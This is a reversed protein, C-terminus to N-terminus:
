EWCHINAAMLRVRQLLVERHNEAAAALAIVAGGLAIGVIWLLNPREVTERIVMAVLDALLFGTGTYMLARVRIGISLIVIAVSAVMLSLLHPWSGGVIHFTPSVLIVLAGLYRLPNVHPAPIERKLYEVLFLISVGLPIMFWQPDSWTLERWLLALAANVIVIAGVVFGKERRELGQWFYFGAALLLALSNMGHWTTSIGLVHRGLAIAVTGLPLTLGVLALPKSMVATSPNRSTLRGLAWATLGAFLVAYMGWGHEFHIVGPVALYAVSLAVIAIAYWVRLESTERCARLIQVGAITAFSALAMGVSVLGFEGSPLLLSVPLATAMILKLGACHSQLVENREDEEAFAIYEIVLGGLAACLAVPLACEVLQAITAQWIWHSYPQCVQLVVPFMQWTALVILNRWPRADRELFAKTVLAFLAVGGAIRAPMSISLLTGVLIAGLVVSAIAYPAAAFLQWSQESCHFQVDVKQATRVMLQRRLLITTLLTLCSVSAWSTAYWAAGREVGMAATVLLSSVGLTLIFAVASLGATKKHRSADFSWAMVAVLGLWPFGAVGTFHAFVLRHGYYVCTLLSLGVFSLRYAPGALARTIRPAPTLTRLYGFLWLGLLAVTAGMLAQHLSAGRELGWMFGLALPCLLAFEGLLPLLWVVSQVLLLGCLCMAALYSHGPATTEDFILRLTTAAILVSATMVTVLLSAYQCIPWTSLAQLRLKNLNLMQYSSGSVRDLWRGPLLLLGGVVGMALYPTEFTVEFHLLDRAFVTWGLGAIILGTVGAVILQREQFLIAQLAFVVIMVTAVPFMAKPHGCAAVLLLLALGQAAARTPQAFLASGRKSAIRSAFTLGLLLPLYTLGYFAYPLRPEQVSQAGQQIVNAALQQFFVPSFNYSVIIALLMAWVLQKNQTRHALIALLIAAVAATPPLAFPRPMAVSSLCVGKIVLLLGIGLPAVINWPMPRLFGGTRREYVRAVADATLLVPVAVMVLALGLWEFPLYEPVFRGLHVASLAVFQGVLLGIPFFGFIRPLQQEEALWFVHRNVKVVGITVVAWLTAGIWPTWSGPLAPLVAGAACLVMYSAVFTPQNARLFHAFIRRAALYSLVLNGVLLAVIPFHMAFYHLSINESPEVWHLAFFSIPLLLVTLAMLGSGTKRLTLQWYCVQSAIFIIATYALIVLYKWVPPYETWHSGILRMSSGLVLITGIGLLWKINKEQLFSDFFRVIPSTNEQKTSM